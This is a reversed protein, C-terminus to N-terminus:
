RPREKRVGPNPYQPTPQTRMPTIEIMLADTFFWTHRGTGDPDGCMKPARDNLIVTYTEGYVSRGNHLPDYRLELQGASNLRWRADLAQYHSRSEPFEGAVSAVPLWLTCATIGLTFALRTWQSSM